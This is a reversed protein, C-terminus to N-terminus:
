MLLRLASFMERPITSHADLKTGGRNHDTEKGPAREFRQHHVWLFAAVSLLIIILM